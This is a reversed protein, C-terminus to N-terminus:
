AAAAMKDAKKMAKLNAKEEIAVIQERLKEVEDLEDRIEHYEMKAHIKDIMKLDKKNLNPNNVTIDSVKDAAFAPNFFDDAHKRPTAANYRSKAGGNKKGGQKPATSAVAADAQQQKHAVKNKNSTKVKAPQVM